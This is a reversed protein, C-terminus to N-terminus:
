QSDSSILQQAIGFDPHEELNEGEYETLNGNRFYEITSLEGNNDWQFRRGDFRGDKYHGHLQRKGNAYWREWLGDKVLDGDEDLYAEFRDMPKGNPFFVTHVVHGSKQEILPMKLSMLQGFFEARNGADTMDLGSIYDGALFYSGAHRWLALVDQATKQRVEAPYNDRAWTLSLM